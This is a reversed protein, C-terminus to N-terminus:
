PTMWEFFTALLLRANNATSTTVQNKFLRWAHQIYDTFVISRRKLELAIIASVLTTQGHAPLCKM